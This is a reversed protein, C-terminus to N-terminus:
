ETMLNDKPEAGRLLSRHEVPGAPVWKTLLIVQRRVPEYFNPAGGEGGMGDRRREASSGPPLSIGVAPEKMPSCSFTVFGWTDRLYLNAHPCVGPSAEVVVLESM